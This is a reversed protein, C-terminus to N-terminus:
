READGVQVIYVNNEPMNVSDCSKNHYKWRLGNHLITPLRNVTIIENYSIIIHSIFIVSREWVDMLQGYPASYKKQLLNLTGYAIKV